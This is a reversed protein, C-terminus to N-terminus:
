LDSKGIPVQSVGAQLCSVHRDSSDGGSNRGDWEDHSMKEMDFRRGLRSTLPQTRGNLKDRSEVGWSVAPVVRRKGCSLVKSSSAFRSAASDKCNGKQIREQKGSAGAIEPSGTMQMDKYKSVPNM